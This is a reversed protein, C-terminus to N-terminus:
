HTDQRKFNTGHSNHEVFVINNILLLVSIVLLILLQMHPFFNLDIVIFIGSTKM